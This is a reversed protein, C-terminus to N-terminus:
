YFKLKRKIKVLEEVIQNQEELTCNWDFRFIKDIFTKVQKKYEIYLDPRSASFHNLRELEFNIIDVAQMLDQFDYTEM